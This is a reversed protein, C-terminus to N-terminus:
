SKKWKRKTKKRAVLGRLALTKDDMEELPSLPSPVFDKKWLFLMGPYLETLSVPPSFTSDSSPAESRSIEQTLFSLGREIVEANVLFGREKVKHLALLTYATHFLDGEGGWFGWGGDYSQLNYLSYIDERIAETVELIKDEM